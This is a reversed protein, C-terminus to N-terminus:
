SVIVSIVVLTEKPTSMNTYTEWVEEKSIGLALSSSPTGNVEFNVRFITLGSESPSKVGQTPNQKM